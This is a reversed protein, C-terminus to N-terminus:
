TQQIRVPVLLEKLTLQFEHRLKNTSRKNSTIKPLRDDIASEIGNQESIDFGSSRRDTFPPAPRTKSLDLDKHPL